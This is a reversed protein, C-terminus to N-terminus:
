KKREKYTIDVINGLGTYEKQKVLPAMLNPVDYMRVVGCENTDAGDKVTAVVLQYGRQREWEEYTEWAVLPFFKVFRITARPFNLM